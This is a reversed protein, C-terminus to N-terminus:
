WRRELQGGGRPGRHGAVCGTRAVRAGPAARPRGAASRPRAAETTRATGAAVVSGLRRGGASAAGRHSATGAGADPPAPPGAARAGQRRRPPGHHERERGRAVRPGARRPRRGGRTHVAPARDDSLHRGARETRGRAGASGAHDDVGRGRQVRRARSADVGQAAQGVANAAEARMEPFRYSLGPIIDPILAPRELRGLARARHAGDAPRQEPRWPPAAGSRRGDARAPERRARHRAALRSGAGRRRRTLLALMVAPLAARRETLMMLSGGAGVAAPPAHGRLVRADADDPGAPVLDDRRHDRGGANTVAELKPMVFGTYSPLNLQEVRASSRTACSRISICATPRSCRAEGGRLRGRAKIRQVEALLRGVGDRFAQADTM